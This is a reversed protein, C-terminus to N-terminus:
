APPETAARRWPRCFSEAAGCGVAPEDCRQKLYDAAQALALAVQHPEAAFGPHLPQTLQPSDALENVAHRLLDAVAPPYLGVSVHLSSCETAVAEHVFGRPVYLSDGAHLLVQTRPEATGSPTVDRAERPNSTARDFVRWEKAGDIQLVIVDHDDYHAPMGQSAAPTLYANASVGYSLEAELGHCLDFIRAAFKQIRSVRITYGHRFFGRAQEGDAARDGADTGGGAATLLLTDGYDAAVLSKRPVIKDKKLVTLNRVPIAGTALLKWLLSLNFLDVFRDPRGHYLAPDKSLHKELFRAAKGTCYDLWPMPPKAQTVLHDRRSPSHHHASAISM